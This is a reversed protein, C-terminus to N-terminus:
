PTGPPAPRQPPLSDGRARRAPDTRSNIGTPCGTPRSHSATASVIDSACHRECYYDWVWQASYRADPRPCTAQEHRMAKIAGDYLERDMLFSARDIDVVNGSFTLVYTHFM